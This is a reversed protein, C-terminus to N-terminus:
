KNSHQQRPNSNRIVQYQLSLNSLASTQAFALWFMPYYLVSMFQAAIISGILALNLGLAMSGLLKGENGHNAFKKLSRRNVMLSVLILIIFIAGGPKGIEAFSQLFTNHIEEVIFPADGNSEYLTSRYPVWNFYGIGIWPNKSIIERAVGWNELRKQSTVDDGMTTYRIKQEDPLITWGIIVLISLAVLTRLRMKSTLLLTSIIAILALQGGRSSSAIVTLFATGPFLMMLLQWRKKSLFQKHALLLTLSMSFMIVMQMALEGSNRFWGPPGSVGWHSFSFGGMIFSRAGFASMKFNILIFFVWFLLMRRPTTLISTVAFYLIVWSLFTTAQNWSYQPAWAFVGSLFVLFTFIIFLKDVISFGLSRHKTVFISYVLLCLTILGYPIIDLTPYMLHPRIYEIFIYICLFWLAASESRFSKIIKRLYLSFLGEDLNWEPNNNKDIIQKRM